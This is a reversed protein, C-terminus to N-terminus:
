ADDDALVEPYEVSIIAAIDDALVSVMSTATRYLIDIDMAFYEHVLINRFGVIARWDVNPYRSRLERSINSSAEGIIMLKHLVASQLLDDSEFREYSAGAVFGAVSRAARVIDRLYLPEPRRM